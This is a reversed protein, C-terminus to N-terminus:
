RKEKTNKQLADKDFIGVRQSIVVNSRGTHHLKLEFFTSSSLFSLSSLNKTM